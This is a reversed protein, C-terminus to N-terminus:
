TSEIAIIETVSIVLIISAALLLDAQEAVRCKGRNFDRRWM